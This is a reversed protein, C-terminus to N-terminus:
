HTTLKTIMANLTHNILIDVLWFFAAFAFVTLIVVITTSRVEARSPANVKRLESRVDGLFSKLREPQSKFREMGTTPQDAVVMAKAM